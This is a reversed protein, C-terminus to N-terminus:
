GDQKDEKLFLHYTFRDLHSMADNLQMELHDSHRQLIQRLEGKTKASEVESVDLLDSGHFDRFKIMEKKIEEISM